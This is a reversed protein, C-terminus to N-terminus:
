ELIGCNEITIPKAPKGRFSFVKECEHLVKENERLIDASYVSEAGEKGEEAADLINCTLPVRAFVVCKGNMHRSGQENLSIYFQSGNSHRKTSVMSLLGRSSHPIIFNEDEFFRNTYVPGFSSFNGSGDNNVIDGCMIANDKHISHFLTNKYGATKTTPQGDDSVCPLIAKSQILNIFNEVTKPTIDIACEIVLRGIPEKEISIDMYVKPRTASSMNENLPSPSEWNFPTPPVYKTFAEAGEKQYKNYWGFGKAGRFVTVSRRM